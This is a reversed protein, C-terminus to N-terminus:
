SMRVYRLLVTHQVLFCCGGILKTQLFICCRLFWFVFSAKIRLSVFVLSVSSFRVVCKQFTDHLSFLAENDEDTLRYGPDAHPQMTIIIIITLNLATSSFEQLIFFICTFVYMCVFPDSLGTIYISIAAFGCALALFLGLQLVRM